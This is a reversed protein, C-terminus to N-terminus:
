RAVVHPITSGDHFVITVRTGKKIAGDDDRFLLFYTRGAILDHRTSMSVVSNLLRGSGEVKLVPLKNVDQMMAVAKDADLVVFRFDVFGGDGSTALQMPRLGWATEVAPNVAPLMSGAASQLGHHVIAAVALAVVLVAAVAGTLVRARGPSSTTSQNSTVATAM